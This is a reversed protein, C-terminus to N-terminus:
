IRMSNVQRRNVDNTQSNSSQESGIPEGGQRPTPSPPDRQRKLGNVWCPTSIATRQPKPMNLGNCHSQLTGSSIHLRAPLELSKPAM